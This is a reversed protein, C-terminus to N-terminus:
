GAAITQLGCAWCVCYLVKSQQMDANMSSQQLLKNEAHSVQCICFMHGACASNDFQLVEQAKLETTILSHCHQASHLVCTATASRLIDSMDQLQPVEDERFNFRPFNRQFEQCAHQPYLQKLERLVAGWTKVEEPTYQLTPIVNGSCLHVHPELM